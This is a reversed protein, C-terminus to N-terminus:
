EGVVHPLATYQLRLTARHGLFRTRLPVVLRGVVVPMGGPGSQVEAQAEVTGDILSGARLPWGQGDLELNAAVLPGFTEQPPQLVIRHELVWVRREFQRAAARTATVLAGQAQERLALAGLFDTLGLVLALLVLVACVSLLLVPADGREERWQRRM